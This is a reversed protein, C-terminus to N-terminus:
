FYLVPDKKLQYLWAHM